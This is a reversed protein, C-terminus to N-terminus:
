VQQERGVGWWLLAVVGLIWVAGAPSQSDGTAVASLLGSAWSALLAGTVIVAAPGRTTAMAIAGAVLALGWVRLPLLDRLVAFTGSSYAGPRIAIDGFFVLVM